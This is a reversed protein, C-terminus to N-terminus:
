MYFTLGTDTPKLSTIHLTTAIKASHSTKQIHYIRLAFGNNCYCSAETTIHTFVPLSAMCASM